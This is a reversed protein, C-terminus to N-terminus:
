FISMLTAIGQTYIYDYGKQTLIICEPKGTKGDDYKIFGEDILRNAIDAFKDQEVPNLTPLLGQYIQRMMIVQDVKYNGRRFLDMILEAIEYDARATYLESYGKETLRLVDGGMGEKEYTVIGENILENAADIFLKQEEPNLNRMIGNNFNRMMVIHGAKSNTKRFQELIVEKLDEITYM